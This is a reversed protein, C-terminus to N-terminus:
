LYRRFLDRLFPMRNYDAKTIAGTLVVFLLYFIFGTILAFLVGVAESGTLLSTWRYVELYVIASFLGAVGPKFIDNWVSLRYGTNRYLAVLNLTATILFFAVYAYCCGSIEFGAVSNLSYIMVLKFFGGILMNKLPIAPFGLGQLVGTTTQQIYAMMGGLALISLMRGADPSGYIVKTIPDPIVLFAAIFPIGALVTIRIAESTRSRVLSLRNQAVADSIAPVLSTALSVTIVSPIFLMTLAVGTLQGYIVTAASTSYGAKKLMMPIIIADVSLMVTVALRGLTIPVCLEILKRLINVATPLNPLMVKFNRPKEKIFITVLVLLGAIEGAVGAAAIGMAARQIGQPLLIVALGLGTIVRIVQEIVQGLAPPKMNMLGQFFGRFASGISIVFVGPLLCLFVPYVMKNIFVYKLLLPSMLYAVLSFFTGTIVLISVALWLIEFSGRRNGKAEEESVLKSIGLPIGATALVIILIYVPYVLNFLGVGEPGILRYIIAQYIFGIIRNVTAAAMLIFAGGALTDKM